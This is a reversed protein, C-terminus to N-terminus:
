DRHQDGSCDGGDDLKPKEIREGDPKKAPFRKMKRADKERNRDHRERQDARLITARFGFLMKRVEIVDDILRLVTQQSVVGLDNCAELHHEAESATSIAMTLFRAFDARTDRMAGEVINASIAAVSRFLQSRLGPASKGPFRVSKHVAVTLARAKHWAKIKRHDQM